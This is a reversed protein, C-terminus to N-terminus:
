RPALRGDTAAANQELKLLLDRCVAATEFDEEGVAAEMRLEVARADLACLAEQRVSAVRVNRRIKGDAGARRGEERGARRLQELLTEAQVLAADSASLVTSPQQGTVLNYEIQLRRRRATENMALSM